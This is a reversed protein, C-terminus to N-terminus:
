GHTAVAEAVGAAFREVDEATTDFSCMWRVLHTEEDWVWFPSWEILPAIADGPLTAFVSNVVPTATLEVGSVQAVRDALLLAMENAHRANDRWLDDRLLADFQAAIYRMKSALQGAQKRVFRAHEGLEPRVFLVAEGYMLGNKTGGFTVVDVGTGVVLDHLECDLAVAANALRAGDVHM